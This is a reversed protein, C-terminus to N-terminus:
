VVRTRRRTDGAAARGELIRRRIEPDSLGARRKDDLFTRLWWVLPAPLRYSVEQELPLLDQLARKVAELRGPEAGRELDVRLPGTESVEGVGDLRGAAVAEKVVEKLVDPADDPWPTTVFLRAPLQKEIAAGLRLMGAGTAYLRGIDGRTGVEGGGPFDPGEIMFIEDLGARPNQLLKVLADAVETPEHPPAHLESTRIGNVVAWPLGELLATAGPLRVVLLDSFTWSGTDLPGPIVAGALLIPSEIAVLPRRVRLSKDSMAYLFGLASEPARNNEATFGAVRAVDALPVAEHEPVHALLLRQAHTLGDPGLPGPEDEILRSGMRQLDEVSAGERTPGVTGDLANFTGSSQRRGLEPLEAISGTGVHFRGVDPVDVEWSLGDAAVSRTWAVRGIARDMAPRWAFSPRPVSSRVVLVGVGPALGTAEFSSRALLRALAPGAVPDLPDAALRRVLARREEDM